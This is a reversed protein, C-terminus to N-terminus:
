RRPPVDDLFRALLPLIEDGGLDFLDNHDTELWLTTVKGRAAKALRQSMAFPIIQDGRGHVILTPIEIDRLKRESEFRHRRLLSTPLWPLLARGMDTMSTFASFTALGAVRERSALDIAVAAGISWGAAVIRSKDVDDRSMLHQWCADATAYFSAEGPKGASMGYGCYDPAIVNAGLKRFKRVEGMFDALCMGNGYFFVLTPRSSADARVNGGEDLAKGFVAVVREGTKTQLELLEYDAGRPVVALKQGQTSHGPFIMWTQLAYLVLAVGIYVFIAGRVVRWARRRGVRKRGDTPAAAQAPVPPHAPAPETATV